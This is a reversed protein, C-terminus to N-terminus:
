GCVRAPPDNTTVVIWDSVMTAGNKLSTPRATGGERSGQREATSAGRSRVTDEGARPMTSFVTMLVNPLNIEANVARM